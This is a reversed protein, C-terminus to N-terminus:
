VAHDNLQTHVTLRIRTLSASPLKKRRLSAHAAGGRPPMQNINIIAQRKATFVGTLPRFITSM